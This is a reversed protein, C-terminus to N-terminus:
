LTCVTKVIVADKTGQVLYIFNLNGDGIEKVKWDTPSGGLKESVASTGLSAIFAIIDTEKLYEM